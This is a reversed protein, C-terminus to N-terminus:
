FPIEEPDYDQDVGLDAPSNTPDEANIEDSDDGPEPMIPREKLVWRTIRDFKEGAVSRVTIREPAALLGNNALAVAERATNPVPCGIAARERWWKLFKERAYGTHEPCVWESKFDDFGVQYDIRMTRPTGPDANRKEHICYYVDQVDYDTYDIQGSIIGASSAKDSLNSKESPPFEFGCQPCKAYAAHILALCKPCKKAPADGGKGAGPEKVRIMDVPGHRLINGGYDLVLCDTKGTGPSLRTGRGVMQILLGASNTPRLLVVCDTNPADFGTTLVNVNALFKLQPKAQGFLDAPVFEGKFRAIIEAREGPSTSGTVIACEQGSYEQIKEAVHKCHEVSTTFILVSKRDKTLDVIERCASSVIKENDMAAAMEEGIFEGGRIHLDDLNAETRGAKSILPSLYGQAIMEKLGAEYCVENLINEPQCILGGKLRFPTATLGIVRVRPNIVKMDKLFTRYTGEGDPPILHCNHVLVGDAYFSPHGKIQLNYVACPSELEIHAIGVVRIGGDLAEHEQRSGECEEGFSDKRGASDGSSSVSDGCGAQLMKGRGRGETKQDNDCRIRNRGNSRPYGCDAGAPTDPIDRQRWSNGAQVGDGPALKFGESRSGTQVDPEGSEQLLIDLLIKETALCKESDSGRSLIAPPNGKRLMPLIEGSNAGIDELCNGTTRDRCEMENRQFGDGSMGPQLIQPTEMDMGTRLLSAKRKGRISDESSVGKRLSSVDERSYLRTGVALSGAPCWGFETFFPHNATCKIRRGNSLELEILKRSPRSSIAEINGVGLAHCVPQGVYLEEIPIQGRPTDIMTGAPFCEDVMVIDFPGLDCAKNYVSQIGAVIVPEETDRSKLGASFIGIKLEPCLKRIKDSNQELLEKVHALILVRGNWKEVADKAIQALVVSKGCGCPIVVCPNNEKSRLHNYVADVAAQQYPRLEM